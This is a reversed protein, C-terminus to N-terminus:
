QGRGAWSGTSTAHTAVLRLGMEVLAFGVRSRLAAHREPRRPALLQPQRHSARARCWAVQARVERIHSSVLADAMRFSNM